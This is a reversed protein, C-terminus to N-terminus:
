AVRREESRQEMPPRSTAPPTMAPTPFLYPVVREQGVLNAYPGAAWREAASRLFEILERDHM